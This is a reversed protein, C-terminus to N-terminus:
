NKEEKGLSCKPIEIYGRGDIWQYQKTAGKLTEEYGGKIPKIM